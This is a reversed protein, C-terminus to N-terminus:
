CFNYYDNLGQDLEKKLMKDENKLANNLCFFKPRKNKLQLFSKRLTSYNTISVFLHSKEKKLSVKGIHYGYLYMLYFINLHNISRSRYKLQSILTSQIKSNDWILRFMTKTAPYCQHIPKKYFFFKLLKSKSFVDIFYTITNKFGHMRTSTKLILHSFFHYYDLSHDVFMFPKSKSIFFDNPTVKRGLFMDDNFYVFHESLSPIQYLFSEILQSAFLPLYQKPIFDSHKIFEVKDKIESPILHIPKSQYDAIAIYVRNVWKAYLNISKLSYYLEDNQSFRQNSYPIEFRKLQDLHHTESGDVWTFVFDIPMDISKDMPIKLSESSFVNKRFNLIPLIM